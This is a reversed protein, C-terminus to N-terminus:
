RSRRTGRCRATSTTGYRRCTSLKMLTTRGPFGEDTLRAVRGREIDDKTTGGVIPAFVENSEGFIGHCSACKAEWVDMGQAVSGSGRPLGKFDPRVDIDWAAVERPTAPRGIGPFATAGTVAGAQTGAAGANPQAAASGAFLAVLVTTALLARATPRLRDPCSSM